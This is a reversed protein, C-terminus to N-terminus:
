ENEATYNLLIAGKLEAWTINRNKGSWYFQTQYAEPQGEGGVPFTIKKWGNEETVSQNLEELFWPSVELYASNWSLTISGSGYGSIAYNFGDYDKPVRESQSDLIEGKWNKDLVLNGIIVGVALKKNNTAAYSSEEPIAEIRIRAGNKDEEPISITYSVKSAQNGLLEQNQLNVSYSGDQESLVYSTDTDNIHIGYGSPNSSESLLTVKLSYKIDQNNYSSADGMVYNYIEVTFSNNTTTVKRNRYEDVVTNKGETYLLNSSFMVLGGDKLTVVRRAMSFNTYAAMSGSVILVCIAVVLCVTGWYRHAHKKIFNLKESTSKKM